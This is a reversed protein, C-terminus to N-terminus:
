YVTEVTFDGDIKSSYFRKYSSESNLIQSSTAGGKICCLGSQSYTIIKLNSPLKIQKMAKLKDKSTTSHRLNSFVVAVVKDKTSLSLNVLYNFMGIVDKSKKTTDVRLEDNLNERLGKVGRKFKGRRKESVEGVKVINENFVYASIHTLNMNRISRRDLIYNLKNMNSSFLSRCRYSNLGSNDVAVVLHYNEDGSDNQIPLDAGFVAIVLLTSVISKKM